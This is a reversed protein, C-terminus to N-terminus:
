EAGVVRVDMTAVIARDAILEISRVTGGAVQFLFVVRPLGRVVWAAGLEGDVTVVRAGRSDNFRGAVAAAGVFRADTGMRQGAADVNMVVDPALLTLLRNLDGGHAASIFAEVVRTNEDRARQEELPTPVERVKRRGRSALQRAATESRGLMEAIEPFSYGFVDYLVFAAREAPALAELVVNVADGVREAVIADNDPMSSPPPALDPQSEAAARTHSRRLLDLCLRTVVTTLWASPEDIGEARELRLWAEQVVDDADKASGLIRTALRTLRPRDLEFEVPNMVNVGYQRADGALQSKTM